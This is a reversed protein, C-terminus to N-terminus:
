RKPEGTTSPPTALPCWHSVNILATAGSAVCEFAKGNWFLVWYPGDTGGSMTALVSTGDKPATSIDQWLEEAPKAALRANWAEIAKDSHLDTCPGLAGCENCLVAPWNNETCSLEVDGSNCFPCALLAERSPTVATM